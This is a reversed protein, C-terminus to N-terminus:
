DSPRYAFMTFRDGTKVVEGPQPEQDYIGPEHTASEKWRITWNLGAARAKAEADTESLGITDPVRVMGAGLTPTAVSGADNGGAGPVSSDRTLLIAIAAVALTALLLVALIPATSRRVPRRRAPVGAERPPRAGLDAHPPPSAVAVVRTTEDSGRAVAAPASAVDLARSMAAASEFRRAPDADLAQLVVADLRPAIGDVLTSPAPPRGMEQSAVVAEPDDGPYPVRGTLAVYLVAGVAFLDSSPTLEDGRLQEPAMAHLSGLSTTEASVVHPARAIGFDILKTPGPGIMINGAKVDCHVLGHEHAARLGALVEAALATAEDAPLRQREALIARLSRYDVLLEMVIFSLAGSIGSDYVHVLNPHSLAAVARAEALFRAAFDANGAYPAALVKVAVDRDLRRDHGQYVRAMGGRAVLSVIRYRDGVVQGIAPDSRESADASEARPHSADPPM